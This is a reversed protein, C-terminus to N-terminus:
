KKLKWIIEWYEFDGWELGHVQNDLLWICVPTLLLAVSCTVIHKRKRLMNYVVHVKAPSIYM